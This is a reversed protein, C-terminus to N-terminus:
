IAASRCNFNGWDFVVFCDMANTKNLGGLDEVNKTKTAYVVSGAGMFLLGKFVAHNITHYMSAM